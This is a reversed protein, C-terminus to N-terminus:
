GNPRLRAFMEHQINCKAASTARYYSYKFTKHKRRCAVLNCGVTTRSWSGPNTSLRYDIRRNYQGTTVKSRESTRVIFYVCAWVCVCVCM